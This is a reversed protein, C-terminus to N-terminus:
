LARADGIIRAIRGAEPLGDLLRAGHWSLLQGDVLHLLPSAGRTQELKTRLEEAHRASFPFPESSLLVAEPECDGIQEVSM